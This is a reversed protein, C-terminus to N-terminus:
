RAPDDAARGGEEIPGDDDGDIGAAPVVVDPDGGAVRESERDDDIRAQDPDRAEESLSRTADIYVDGSGAPPDEPRAPTPDPGPVPRNSITPM